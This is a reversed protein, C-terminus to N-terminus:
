TKKRRRSSRIWGVLGLIVSAGALVAIWSARSKWRELEEETELLQAAMEEQRCKPPELENDKGLKSAMRERVALLQRHLDSEMWGGPWVEQHGLLEPLAATGYCYSTHLGEGGSGYRAFILYYENEKFEMDCSNQKVLSLRRNQSNITDGDDSAILGPKYDKVLEIGEWTIPKGGWRFAEQSEKYGLFKGVLVYDARAWSHELPM